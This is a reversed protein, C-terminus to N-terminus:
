RARSGFTPRARTTARSPSRRRASQRAHLLRQEIKGHDQYWDTTWEWVNGAMEYLGYGNPPFSGVPATWEYGDEGCTRGRSSARGPTPWRSATRRSSTAGHSSPAKSGAARPSNGNPKPRCSRARGNRMRRPTRSRSTCSRTIGDARRINSAPGRPHRWDAGPVYVWWNYHNRLSRGTGAAEQVDGVFTRAARAERRSVEGSGRAARRAHRLGHGRRFAPIGREHGRVQEDLLREVTVDHAPAEEPYHHDSGMRFTGGPIWVMDAAPPMGPAAAPSDTHALESM